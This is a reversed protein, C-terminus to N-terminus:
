LMKDFNLVNGIIDEPGYVDENRIISLVVFDGNLHLIYKKDFIKLVSKRIKKDGYKVWSSEKMDFDPNIKKLKKGDYIFLKESFEGKTLLSFEIQGEYTNISLQLEYLNSNSKITRLWECKNIDEELQRIQFHKESIENHAILSDNLSMRYKKDATFSAEHLKEQIKQIEDSFKTIIKRNVKIDEGLQWYSKNNEVM